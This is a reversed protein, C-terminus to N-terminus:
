IGHDPLAMGALWLGFGCALRHLRAACTSESSSM